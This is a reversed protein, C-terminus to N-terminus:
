NLLRALGAMPSPPAAQLWIRQLTPSSSLAATTTNVIKGWASGLEAVADTLAKQIAAVTAVSDLVVGAFVPTIPINVTANSNFPCTLTVTFGGTTVGSDWALVMRENSGDRLDNATADTM